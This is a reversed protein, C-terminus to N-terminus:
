NEYVKIKNINQNIQTISVNYFMLFSKVVIYLFFVSLAKLLTNQKMGYNAKKM